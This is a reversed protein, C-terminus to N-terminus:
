KLMDAIVAEMTLDYYLFGYVAAASAVKRAYERTEPFEVTETFLDAPLEPAEARWRRVRGMGGNYALLALLPNQMRGLLYRLYFAGLHINALPDTLDVGGERRYDTGGQRALRGAMEAATDPMLQTLGVAGARSGIDPAFASETRILGFLLWPPIGLEGAYSEVPELFPRPYCLELDARTPEYDDTDLYSGALRISEDWIGADQLAEALVRLEDARLEQRYKGIYPLAFESAGHEFFGLLFEMIEPRSFGSAKAPSVAPDSPAPLQLDRGLKLASLARYYFSAKKETFVAQYFEEPRAGNFYGSESARGLIYGYQARAPGPKLLRYVELLSEWDGRAALYRALRDLIDNFYVARHWRPIWIRLLGAMEGPRDQLAMSLIYWICADAQLGDPALEVARSFLASATEHRGRQREIRGAFYLLRYALQRQAPSDLTGSVGSPGSVPLGPQGGAPPMVGAAPDPNRLNEEWKLFLDTGEASNDGFQFSRGLGTLLEPYQLFLAPEAELATKFHGLAQVFASRALSLRGAVAAAEAETFLPGETGGARELAWLYLPDVPESLFLGATEADREAGGALRALARGWPAPLAPGLRSLLAPDPFAPLLPLLRRAAEKRVVAGGGLAARYLAAADARNKDGAQAHEALLAAYFSEGPSDIGWSQCSSFVLTLCFYCFLFLYSNM